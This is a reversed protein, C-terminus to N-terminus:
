LRTTVPGIIIFHGSRIASNSRQSSAPFIAVSHHRSSSATAGVACSLRRSDIADPTGTDRATIGSSASCSSARHSEWWRRDAGFTRTATRWCPQRCKFWEPTPFFLSNGASRGLDATAESSAAPRARRLSKNPLGACGTRTGGQFRKSPENKPKSARQPRVPIERAPGRLAEGLAGPTMSTFIWTSRTAHFPRRSNTPSSAANPPRTRCRRARRRRATHASSGVPIRVWWRTWSSAVSANRSRSIATLTAWGATSQSSAPSIKAGSIRSGAHGTMGVWRRSKKAIIKPGCSPEKGRNRYERDHRDSNDAPCHQTPKCGKKRYKPDPGRKAM